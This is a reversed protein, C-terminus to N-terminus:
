RSFMYLTGCLFPASIGLDTVLGTAPTISATSKAPHESKWDESPCGEPASAGVRDAPVAGLGVKALVGATAGAGASVGVPARAAVGM